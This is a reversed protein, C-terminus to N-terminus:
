NNVITQTLHSQIVSSATTLKTLHAIDLGPHENAAPLTVLLIDRL